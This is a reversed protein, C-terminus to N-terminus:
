LDVRLGRKKAFDVIEDLAAASYQKEGDRYRKLVRDVADTPTPSTVNLVVAQSYANKANEQEEKRKDPLGNRNLDYVKISARGMKDRKGAFGPNKNKSTGFTVHSRIDTEYPNVLFPKEDELSKDPNKAYKGAIPFRTQKGHGQNCLQCSPLYNAPDYALWYYGPHDIPKGDEDSVASKPRYHEVDGFAVHAYDSQCYACKGQFIDQLHDKLQKWIRSKWKYDSDKKPFEKNAIKQEAQAKVLWQKDFDYPKLSELDVEYHKGNLFEVAAEKSEAYLIRKHWNDPKSKRAVKCQFNPKIFKPLTM